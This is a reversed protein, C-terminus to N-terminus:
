IDADSFRMDADSFSEVGSVIDDVMESSFKISGLKLFYDDPRFRDAWLGYVKYFYDDDVREYLGQRYNKFFNESLNLGAAAYAAVLADFLDELEVWDKKALHVFWSDHSEESEADTLSDFSIWYHGGLELGKEKVDVRWQM